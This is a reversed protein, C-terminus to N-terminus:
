QHVEVLGAELLADVFSDADAQATGSPLDFTQQLSMALEERSAGTSSLQKWLMAGVLNMSLYTSSELDLIVVEDEIARWALGNKRARFRM